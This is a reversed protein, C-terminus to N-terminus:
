GADWLVILAYITTTKVADKTKADPVNFKSEKSTDAYAFSSSLAAAGIGGLFKRRTIKM